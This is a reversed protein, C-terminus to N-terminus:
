YAACGCEDGSENGFIMRKVMVGAVIVARMLPPVETFACEQRGHWRVMVPPSLRYVLGIQMMYVRRDFWFQVKMMKLTGIVHPRLLRQRMGRM